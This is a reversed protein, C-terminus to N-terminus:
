FIDGCKRLKTIEQRSLGLGSLVDDTHEGFNPSQGSTTETVGRFSVGPRPLKAVTGNAFRTTSMRNEFNMQPNDMLDRPHGVPAAPLGAMVLMEILPASDYGLFIEQCTAHLEDHAARRKENSDFRPDAFLDPRAYMECFAKWQKDSTIGVFITEGDGTQFTEYIGWSRPRVSIPEPIEGTHAESAIHQGVLFASSEYLASQVHRGLGTEDRQLLASLIGIVGFMGGAIDVVSSGARLPRDPLGTMYALGTSYQVVEDLATYNEYPGPLYGKLSCYVLQPNLKSVEEYGIGLRDATGPAFNETLVDADKLLRHAVSRGGVTKLNLGISQKSRNFYVFSGAVHGELNRTRDGQPAPEVKIVDAGLEALIMGCSPGMVVHCFEIVRKGKLPLCTPDGHSKSQDANLDNM